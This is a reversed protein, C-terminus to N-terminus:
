QVRAKVEFRIKATIGFALFCHQLVDDTKGVVPAAQDDSRRLNRFIQGVSSQEHPRPTLLTLVGRRVHQKNTQKIQKNTYICTHIYAHIYAHIYTHMYTHICTHICTRIYTYINAQKDTQKNKPLSTPLPPPLLADTKLQVLKSTM